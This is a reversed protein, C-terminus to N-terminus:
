NLNQIPILERKFIICGPAVDEPSRVALYTYKDFAYVVRAIQRPTELGTGPHFLLEHKLM